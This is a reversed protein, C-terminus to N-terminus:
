RLWNLRDMVWDWAADGYCASAWAVALASGVLVLAFTAVSGCIDWGIFAGLAAGLLLGCFFYVRGDDSSSLYQQRAKHRENEIVVLVL